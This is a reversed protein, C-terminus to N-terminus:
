FPYGIAINFTPQFPDRLNVADSYQDQYSKYQDYQPGGRDWLWRGGKPIAPNHIPFGVDFRFVFISLDLRVGVGIGLAIQNFFEDSLEGNTRLSDKKLLWINGFDAFLAGEFFSVIDFRYEFTGLMRFDGIRSASNITDLFAGPGLSRAPFARVSNSGGAFFSYDFPLTPSNGYPVGVGANFRFNVSSTNEKDLWYHYQFDADARFFQTYPIGAITYSGESNTNNSGVKALRLLNGAIDIKGIFNFRSQHTASILPENTFKFTYNSGLTFNDIFTNKLFEDNLDEIRQQFEDSTEIQNIKLVLPSYQHRRSKHVEYFIYAMSAVSQHRLYEPRNQFNYRIKFETEPYARKPPKFPFLTPLTLSVTPGFEYTNFGFNQNENDSSTLPPQYQFGGSFDVQLREAGRFLNKNIYNISASVGLVSSSHTAKPEIKFYQRKSPTLYYDVRVYNGETDFDETVEPTINRFIGLSNLREFSRSVYYDKFYHGHELFNQRDLVKPKIFMRGNYIIKPYEQKEFMRATDLLYFRNKADKVDRLGKNQLHDYFDGKFYTTDNLHFFVKSVKYTELPKKTTTGDPLTVERKKVGIYLAAKYNGLTTDVEYYILSKNAGFQADDQLSKAIRSREDDLVESSLLMGEEIKSVTKRLAVSRNTATGKIHKIYLKNDTLYIITDVVYPKGTNIRYTVKAFRKTSDYVTTDTVHAYFYGQKRLYIEMQKSTANTKNTDLIVPPEGISFRVWERFTKSYTKPYYYKPNFEASLYSTDKDRKLYREVKRKYKKRARAIRRKNVKYVREKKKENKKEIRKEKKEIKANMKATDISNYAGLKFRWFGFWKSNPQQKIVASIDEEDISDNENEIEVKNVLFEGEQIHKGPKCSLM